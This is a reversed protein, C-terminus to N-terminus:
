RCVMGRYSFGKMKPSFHNLVSHFSDLNATQHKVSLKGVDKLLNRRTVIAEIKHGAKTGIIKFM